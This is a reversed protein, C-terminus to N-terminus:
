TFIKKIISDIGPVEKLADKLFVKLEEEDEVSYTPELSDLDLLVLYGNNDRVELIKNNPYEIIFVLPEIWPYKDQLPDETNFSIKINDTPLLCSLQKVKELLKEM